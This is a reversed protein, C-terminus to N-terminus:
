SIKLIKKKSFIFYAALALVFAGASAVYFPTNEGFRDWLFGALSSSVFASVGTATHYIGYASGKIEESILDSIVARSAVENGAMFLGYFMFGAWAWIFNGGTFLLATIGFLIYTAILINLKGARDAMAGAPYSAVAYVLNFFLYVAPILGLSVGSYNAKLLMFAFNMSFVTFLVQFILFIYFGSPINKLSPRITKRHYVSKKEKVFFVLFLVALFAPVASILFVLRFTDETEGFYFLFFIAVLTGLVAGATDMGRHFGFARGSSEPTTYSSILADRPSTRIGKGTREVARIVLVDRWNGAFYLFPKSIASLSYGIVVLPKKRGAMDSIYGSFVKLLSAVLQATGEIIGIEFKTAKLFHDLFVPLLPFIMESSLDTLFSVIGLFIINKNLKIM